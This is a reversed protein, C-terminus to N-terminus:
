PMLLTMRTGAWKERLMVLVGSKSDAPSVFVTVRVPAPKGNGVPLVVEYETVSRGSTRAERIVSQLPLPLLESSSARGHASSPLLRRAAEPTLAIIKGNADIALALSERLLSEVDMGEYLPESISLGRTPM